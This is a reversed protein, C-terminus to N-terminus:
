ARVTDMVFRSFMAKGPGERVPGRHRLHHEVVGRATMQALTGARCQDGKVLLEVESKALDVDGAIPFELSAMALEKRHDLDVTLLGEDVVDLRLTEPALEACLTPRRM